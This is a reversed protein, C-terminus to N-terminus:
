QFVHFVCTFLSIVNHRHGCMINLFPHYYQPLLRHQYISIDRVQISNLRLTDILSHPVIRFLERATIDELQVPKLLFLHDFFDDM